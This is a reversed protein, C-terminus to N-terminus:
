ARGTPAAAEAGDGGLLTAPDLARGPLGAGPWTASAPSRALAHWRRTLGALGDDRADPRLPQGSERVDKSSRRGSGRAIRSPGARTSPRRPRAREDPTMSRILAEVRSSSAKRWRIRWPTRVHAAEGRRRPASGAEPDTKLQKLLDELGFQGELLREHMKAEAESRTWWRKSTASRPGVIDGMGLIRSAMGEPRFPRSAIWSDRGHGPVQHSRRHGGQGGAGRRRTCRWRAQDAGPRRSRLRESFAKAVNVADRGMLADCVLMRTPRSSSTAPSRRSSRGDASRRHRAPGRHRLILRTSTRRRPRAPGRRRRLDARAPKETEAGPTCPHRRAARRAAPAPAGRRTPIRRRGRASTPSKESRCSTAGAQGGGDDKRRGAPRDADGLHRRGPGTQLSSPDVPGM